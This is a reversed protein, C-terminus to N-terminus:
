LLAGLTSQLREGSGVQREGRLGSNVIMVIELFEPPSQRRTATPEAIPVSRGRRVVTDSTFLKLTLCQSGASSRRLACRTQTPRSGLPGVAYAAM